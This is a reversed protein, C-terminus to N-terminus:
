DPTSSAGIIELNQPEAGAVAKLPITRDFTVLRGRNAVALGLLYIDTLQRHGQIYAAQFFDGECVSVSDHWFFHDASQRIEALRAIADRLSTGQGPYRPNSVVRAFGNETLPCTAWGRSRNHGFWEHAAEHHIHMPDFLAVLMNVDLLSKAGRSRSRQRRELPNM